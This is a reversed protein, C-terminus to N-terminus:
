IAMIRLHRCEHIYLDSFYRQFVILNSAIKSIQPIVQAGSAGTGVIAVRKNTLDISEDWEATHLKPGAFNKFEEPIKPV